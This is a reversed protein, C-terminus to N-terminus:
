KAVMALLMYSDPLAPGNLENKKKYDAIAEKTRNGFKGDASIRYGARKLFAQVKILFEKYVPVEGGDHSIVVIEPTGERGALAYGKSTLMLVSSEVVELLKADRNSSCINAFFQTMEMGPSLVPFVDYFGLSINKATIYGGLWLTYGAIVDGGKASTLQDIATSCSIGGLSRTSFTSNKAQVSTASLFAFVLVSAIALRAADSKVRQRAKLVLEKRRDDLAKVLM